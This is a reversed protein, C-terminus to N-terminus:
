RIRKLLDAVPEPKGSSTSASRTSGFVEDMLKSLVLKGAETPQQTRQEKRKADQWWDPPTRMGKSAKKLSDTLFAMPSVRFHQKGFQEIAAQTIDTWQAVLASPYRQILRVAAPNEFGVALLGELLPSDEVSIRNMQEPLRNLYEGREFAVSFHGPKTRKIAPSSIVEADELRKLTRTVKVKMDRTALTESLGLLDVALHRLDLVPLRGKRYGVKLVFLFLRRSAADLSRYLALDFRMGGGQVNVLDFFTADWNITWSRSSQPDVPLSYSLFGFSVKRCEGRNADYCADSLYNVVSLRELAQAFEQYQRGGRRSGCDIIGMQRLCWHPTATLTGDITPQSLTLNLLGWLYLEDVASLGLPAFVRVKATKRQRKANSYHYEVAHVLNETSSTALPCLSHEVLSLQGVGVRRKTAQKLVSLAILM